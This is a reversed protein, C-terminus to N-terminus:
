FPVDEDYNRRMKRLKHRKILPDPKTRDLLVDYMPRSRVLLETALNEYAPQHGGLKLYQFDIRAAGFGKKWRSKPTTM